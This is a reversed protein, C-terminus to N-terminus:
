KSTFLRKGGCDDLLWATQLNHEAMVRRVNAETAFIRAVKRWVPKAGSDDITAVYGGLDINPTSEIKM